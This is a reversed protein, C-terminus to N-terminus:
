AVVQLDRLLVTVILDRQKRPLMIDEVLLISHQKPKVLMLKILVHHFLEALAVRDDSVPWVSRQLCFRLTHDSSFGGQITTDSIHFVICRQAMITSHETLLASCREITKEL